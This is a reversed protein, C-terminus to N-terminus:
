LCTKKVDVFVIPENKEDATEFHIVSRAQNKLPSITSSGFEVYDINYSKTISCFTGFSSANYLSQIIATRSNKDLVLDDHGRLTYALFLKRGALYLEINKTSVFVAKPPTKERVATIFPSTYSAVAQTPKSNIFTMHELVGSFTLLFLVIFGAAKIVKAKKTFFWFFVVWAVLLDVIFNMPRFFKHNEFVSPPNLEITNVLLFTPILIAGFLLALQKNKRWLLFFGVPILLLKLGYSFLYWKFAHMFSFPIKEQDSFGTNFAPYHGVQDIFWVSQTLQKFYLYHGIFVISFGAFLFLTKKREGSFILLFVIAMLLMLTIQLHWLFFGGMVAGIIILTKESFRKREFLIWFSLLLFLIGTIMQREELIYFLNYMTGNYTIGGFEYLSFHWPHQTNNFIANILAPLSLTATKQLFTIFSLSSSTIAFLVAIFGALRSRFLEEGLGILALLIFTFGLISAANISHALDLGGAGYIAAHVMWFYHYTHPLGAFAENQPPFNDGYIFNQILSLQWSFDWYIPTTLVYNNEIILHHAFFAYSFLFCFITMLFARVQRNTPNQLIKQISVLIQHTDKLYFLLFCQTILLSSYTAKILVNTTFAAFFVALFFTLLTFVFTGAMWALSAKLFTSKPKLDTKSLLIHALVTPLTFILLATIM